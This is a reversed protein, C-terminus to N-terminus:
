SELRSIFGGFVNIIETVTNKIGLIEKQSKRITEIGRSVNGMQKQMSDVKEMLARFMNIM